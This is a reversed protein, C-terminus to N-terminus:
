PRIDDACGRCPVPGYHTVHRTWEAGDHYRLAHHGLPDAHWGKLGALPRSTEPNMMATM